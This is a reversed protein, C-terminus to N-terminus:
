ELAKTVAEIEEASNGTFGLVYWPAALDVRLPVGPNPGTQPRAPALILTVSQGSELPAPVIVKLLTGPSIYEGWHVLDVTVTAVHLVLVDGEVTGCSLNEQWAPQSQAREPEEEVPEEEAFVAAEEGSQVTRAAAKEALPTGGALSLKVTECSVIRASLYRAAGPYIASGESPEDTMPPVTPVGVGGSVGDPAPVVPEEAVAEEEVADEESADGDEREATEDEAADEAPAQGNEEPAATASAAATAETPKQSSQPRATPQPAPAEVPADAPPEAEVSEGAAAATEDETPEPAAPTEAAFFSEPGKDEPKEVAQPPAEEPAEDAVEGSTQEQYANKAGTLFVKAGGLVAVLLVAAAAAATGWKRLASGRKWFPVAKESQKENQKEAEPCLCARLIREKRAETLTLDKMQEDAIARFDSLLRELQEDRM